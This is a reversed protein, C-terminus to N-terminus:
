FVFINCRQILLENNESTGIEVDLHATLLAAELIAVDTLAMPTDLLVTFLETHSIYDLSADPKTIVPYFDGNIDPVKIMKLEQKTFVELSSPIVFTDEVTLMVFIGIAVTETFTSFHFMSYKVKQKFYKTQM